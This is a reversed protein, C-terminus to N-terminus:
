PSEVLTPSPAITLTPEQSLAIPTAVVIVPTLIVPNVIVTPASRSIWIAALIGLIAIMLNAMGLVVTGRFTDRDFKRRDAELQQMRLEGMHQSPTFGPTYPWWLTGDRPQHLVDSALTGDQNHTAWGRAEFEDRLNFGRYCLFETSIPLRVWNGGNNLLVSGGPSPNGLERDLQPVELIRREVYLGM